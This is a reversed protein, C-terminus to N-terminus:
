LDVVIGAGITIGERRIVVRGLTKTDEYKALPLPREQIEVEATAVQKSVLHQKKKGGEISIIKSLRAPVSYNNRFLVFPTGILLPKKMNFLNLRVTFNKVAKVPSNIQLLIDGRRIDEFSKSKLNSKKFMFLVIEGRVAVNMPKEHLTISQIPLYEDSPNIHITEGPQIAGSDVKGTIEFDSNSIEHVDTVVMRFSELLVADIDSTIAQKGTDVQNLYEILTPGKYWSFDQIKEDRKAVNTGTLGSIPIFDVKSSDFNIDSSTLFQSMQGVIEKYRLESWNEKDMKNVVVCIRDLGLSKALIVHEKTQGDMSFGSEFEGAIADVVLLAFDAQSVGGIMQPVFDKHGPADIAVFRCKDTEFNTACIDVTVGRSREESTQDMVWALAFSGKGLKEAQRVLNNVTKGDVAGVEFLLRGMLTSKGADVHGIVVFSKRPKKFTENSTLEESLNIKKFPKTSKPVGKDATPTPTNDPTNIKLESMDQEVLRNQAAIVKDDPSPSAFNSKAKTVSAIDIDCNTYVDFLDNKLRRRKNDNEEKDRNIYGNDTLIHSVMSRPVQSIITDEVKLTVNLPKKNVTRNVHKTDHPEVPKPIENEHVRKRSVSPSGPRPTVRLLGLKKPLGSSSSEAVKKGLSLKNMINLSKNESSSSTQKKANSSSRANMLASLKSGMPKSALDEEKPRM